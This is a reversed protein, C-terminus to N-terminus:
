DRRLSARRGAAVGVVDGNHAHGAAERTGSVESFVPAQQLRSRVCHGVAAGVAIRRARGGVPFRAALIPGVQAAGEHLADLPEVRAKEANGGDLRAHHVRALAHHQFRGPLRKFVGSDIGVAQPAAQCAHVAANAAAFVAVQDFRAALRVAVKAGGGADGDPPDGECQTEFPRGHGDVHGARRGQRRYVLRHRGQLAALHFQGQRAAHM